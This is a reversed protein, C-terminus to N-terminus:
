PAAAKYQNFTTLNWDATPLGVLGLRIAQTDSYVAQRVTQIWSGAPPANSPLTNFPHFAVSSCMAEQVVSGFSQADVTLRGVTHLPSTWPVALNNLPTTNEDVYLQAAVNWCASEAGTDFYTELNRRLFDDSTTDPNSIAANSACPTFKFKAPTGGLSLPAVTYYSVLQLQQVAGTSAFKILRAALIPHLALFAYFSLSSNKLATQFFPVALNLDKDDMFLTESTLAIFDSTIANPQNVKAGKVGFLKVAFGRADTDSDDAIPYGPVFGNGRGSSWRVLAPFSTVGGQATANFVGHALSSDLNAAVQFTGTLCGHQKVHAQRYLFPCQCVSAQNKVGSSFIQGAQQAIKAVAPNPTAPAFAHVSLILTAFLLISSISMTTTIVRSAIVEVFFSSQFLFFLFL